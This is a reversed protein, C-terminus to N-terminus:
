SAVTTVRGSGGAAILADILHHVALVDQGTVKPSRRMEIAEIFDEILAKHSLHSFAMPNAGTGGAHDDSTLQFSRGDHWMINVSNGVLSATAKRCIFDIREPFGPYAATSANITGISGNRFRVSACVFDEGEMQHLPTTIAYGSVEAAPGVFSLMLDLTHIGQTILVGGGDRWLTGRGPEDYYSQPRWLGISASCGIIEGLEGADFVTALKIAASTFRHQLVVGLSVGSSRCIDILESARLTTAELPKELLIHKNAKACLRVIDLHTNPPTLVLVADISKDDLIADIRDCLPFDFRSSFAKRRFANPSFAAVIEIKEHLEILARAHPEAAMGLGIIGLRLKAM